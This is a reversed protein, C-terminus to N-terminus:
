EDEGLREWLSLAPEPAPEPEPAATTLHTYRRITRLHEEFEEVQHDSTIFLSTVSARLADPANPALIRNVVEGILQIRRMEDTEPIPGAGGSWSTGNWVLPAGAPVAAPFMDRLTTYMEPPLDSPEEHEGAAIRLRATLSRLRDLEDQSPAQPLDEVLGAEDLLRQEEETLEGWPGTSPFSVSVLGDSPTPAMAYGIIHTGQDVGLDAGVRTGMSIPGSRTGATPTLDMGAIRPVAPIAELQGDAGIAFPIGQEILRQILAVVEQPRSVVPQEDWLHELVSRDQMQVIQEGLRVIQEESIIM